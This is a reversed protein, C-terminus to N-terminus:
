NQEPEFSCVFQRSRNRAVYKYVRNGVYRVPSLAMLLVIPFFIRFQKLLQRFAEYGGYPEGDRFLYMEEDLDVDDCDVLEKPVDSQSYFQVSDNIDLQKFVYLSRACFYCREDYALQVQDDADAALWSYARDWAGFMLLVVIMDIFYLGLMAVTALHFGILGLASPTITIGLLIAVLLSTQIVATGVFGLWSLSRYELIPEALPREVGTLEQSELIDRQLEYGTLWIEPSGNMIKGWASGLYLLGVALLLWKFVRMRYVQNSGEKLFRNLQDISKEKTRIIADASMADDRHFFAFLLLFYSLVFMSEVTGAHYITAKVSLMHMMLLAAIGGTWRIRYGLVFLVLLGAVLWQQYPLLALFLDNYLFSLSDNFQRPWEQYFGWELSTMRWIIYAGVVVRAAALNFPSSRADDGVYNVFANRFSDIANM